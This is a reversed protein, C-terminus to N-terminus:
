CIDEKVGIYKMNHQDKNYSARLKPQSCYRKFTDSIDESPLINVSHGVVGGKWSGKRPGIEHKFKLDLTDYVKPKVFLSMIWILSKSIFKNKIYSTHGRSYISRSRTCTVENEENDYDLFNFVIKPQTTEIARTEDWCLNTIDKFLSGDLNLLEHKTRRTSDLGWFASYMRYIGKNKTKHYSFNSVYHWKYYFIYEPLMVGFGYERVNYVPITNNIYRDITPKSINFPLLWKIYYHWIGITLVSNMSLIRDDEEYHSSLLIFCWKYKKDYNKYITSLGLINKKLM